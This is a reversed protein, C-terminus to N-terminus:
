HSKPAAAKPGGEKLLEEIKGRLFRADQIEESGTAPTQFRIQGQKDVLIMQPVVWRETMSLGLYTIAPNMGPVYGVPFNPQFEGIFGAVKKEPMEDIAIGIAEFAKGAMQEKVASVTRSFKQCHPCTTLFFDVLVVKGRLSALSIQKGTPLTVKIGPEPRPVALTAALSLQAAFVLGVAVVVLAFRV